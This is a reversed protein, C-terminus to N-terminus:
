YNFMWYNRGIQFHFHFFRSPFARRAHFVWWSRSLTSNSTNFTNSLQVTRWIRNYKEKEFKWERSAARMAHVFKWKSVSHALQLTRIGWKIASHFKGNRKTTNKVTLKTAKAGFYACTMSNTTTTEIAPAMSHKPESFIPWLQVVDTANGRVCELLLDDGCISWFHVFANNRNSNQPNGCM